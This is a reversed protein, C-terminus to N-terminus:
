FYGESSKHYYVLHTVLSARARVETEGRCVFGCESCTQTFYGYKDYLPAKPHGGDRPYLIGRVISTLPVEVSTSGGSVDVLQDSNMDEIYDTKKALKM